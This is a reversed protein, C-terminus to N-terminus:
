IDQKILQNENTLIYKHSTLKRHCIPCLILLNSLLNNERNEDIHHVELIDEDENWGCIVCQHEQHQFAYSRYTNITASTQSYHKPRMLKFAEGSTLSQALDKHERCCFFLGSKSNNLKSKARRFEEGCYACQLIIIDNQYQQNKDEKQCLPCIHHARSKRAVNEYKTEFEYNHQICRVKIFSNRTVYGDVYECTQLSNEFVNQQIQDLSLAM